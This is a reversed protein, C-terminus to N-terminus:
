QAYAKRAKFDRILADIVLFVQKRDEEPMVTIGRIRGLAANDLETDTKGSLYDLSVGLRSAVEVSPTVEDREYRGIIDGSTGVEKGLDGQSLKRAKRLTILRQGFTM